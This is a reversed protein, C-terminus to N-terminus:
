KEEENEECGSGLGGGEGGVVYDVVVMWFDKFM